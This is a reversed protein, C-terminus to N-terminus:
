YNMQDCTIVTKQSWSKVAGFVGWKGTFVNKGLIMQPAMVLLYQQESNWWKLQLVVKLFSFLFSIVAPWSWFKLLRHFSVKQKRNWYLICSFLCKKGRCLLGNREWIEKVIECLWWKFYSEKRRVASLGNKLQRFDFLLIALASGTLNRRCLASGPSRFHIGGQTGVSILISIVM